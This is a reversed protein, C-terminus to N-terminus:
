WHNLHLKEWLLKEEDFPKRQENKQGIGIVALVGIHEPIGLLEKIYDEAAEGTATMRCRIQAWCSGLGMDEAQLQLLIAAISADEVWVDSVTSDGAVVVALAANELFAAGHPKCLALQELTHKEDVLVFEWSRSNKSTPSMLAAKMLIEVQEPTLQEEIYKRTSRRQKLLEILSEM